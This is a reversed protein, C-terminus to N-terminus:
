GAAVKLTAVSSMVSGVSNSVLVTFQAGNNSTTAPPTTYSPLNAGTITLGNKRWQYSIPATGASAVSFTAAQGATVTQDTPQSTISPATAAAAVKLTAVSSMVSAVSNSVLVTFQAGNNSTTAPPTTYSPLNAGTITLGNKRWQYSIPATGTSAVSFTAAQGATVTQDTPQSIISPATAAATVKLTAVCLVLTLFLLVSLRLSFDCRNQWFTNPQSLKM